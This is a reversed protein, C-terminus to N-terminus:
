PKPEKSDIWLNEVGDAGVADLALIGATAPDELDPVAPGNAFGAPYWYRCGGASSYREGTHADRMGRRWTWAPHDTLNSAM